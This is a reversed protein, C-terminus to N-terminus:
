RAPSDRELGVSQIIACLERQDQSPPLDRVPLVSASCDLDIQVIPQDDAPLLGTVAFFGGHVRRIEPKAHNVTVILDLTASLMTPDAWGKITWRSDGRGRALVVEAHPGIWRRGGEVAYFGTVLQAADHRRAFDLQGSTPRLGEYSPRPVAAGGVYGLAKLRQEVDADVSVVQRSRVAGNRLADGIRGLEVLLPLAPSSPDGVLNKTEHPDVSLDFLQTPMGVPGGRARILKFTSERVTEFDRGDLTLEAYPSSPGPVDPRTETWPALDRGVFSPEPPAGLTALITPALDVLSVPASIRRGVGPGRHGTWQMMLPVRVMEEYLDFGHGRRGHDWLGEGHDSTVVVLLNRDLRRASLGTMLEGIWHDTYQVAGRYLHRIRATDAPEPHHVLDLAELDRRSGNFRGPPEPTGSFEPHPFYPDHPDVYHAFLFFPRSKDIADLVELAKRTVGEATAVEFDGPYRNVLDPRVWRDFGQAFGFPESANGNTWVGLTQTGRARLTEALTVVEENLADDRDLVGLATPFRSAFMSAVSSRTWSSAAVAQDFVVGGRGLEDIRPTPSPGSGYLGVHDRRLTDVLVFVVSQAHEPGRGCATALTAVTALLLGGGFVRRAGGFRPFPSRRRSGAPLSTSTTRGL